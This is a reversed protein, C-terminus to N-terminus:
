VNWIDESVKQIAYQLVNPADKAGYVSIEDIYDALAASQEQGKMIRDLEEEDAAEVLGTGHIIIYSEVTYYKKKM